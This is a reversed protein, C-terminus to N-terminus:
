RPRTRTGAPFEFTERNESWWDRWAAPDPLSQGTLRGLEEALRGVVAEDDSGLCDVMEDVAERAGGGEAARSLASVAHLRVEGDRDSKVIDALDEVHGSWALADAVDKRVERSASGLAKLLGELGAVGGTNVLFWVLRRAVAPDRELVRDMRREVVEAVGHKGSRCTREIEGVLRQREALSVEAASPAKGEEPGPGELGTEGQRESALKEKRQLMEREVATVWRGKYFSYGIERLLDTTNSDAPDLEAARKLHDGAALRGARGLLDLYMRAVEFHALAEDPDIEEERINLAKRYARDRLARYRDFDEFRSGGEKGATEIWRGLELLREWKGRRSYRAFRESFLEFDPKLRVVATVALYCSTEKPLRQARGGVWVNDGRLLGSILSRDTVVFQRDSGMLGFVGPAVLRDFKGEVCVLLGHLPTDGIALKLLDRAEIRRYLQGGYKVLRITVGEHVM